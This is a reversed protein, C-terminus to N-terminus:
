ALSIRANGEIKFTRSHDTFRLKVHSEGPAIGVAERLTGNKATILRVIGNVTAVSKDGIRLTAQGGHYALEATIGHRSSTFTSNGKAPPRVNWEVSDSHPHVGSLHWLFDLLVLAAPSRFLM